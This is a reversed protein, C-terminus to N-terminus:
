RRASAKTESTREPARGPEPVLERDPEPVPDLEPEPEPVPDLEPDPEPVLEPPGGEGYVTTAWTGSSTRRSSDESRQPSSSRPPNILPSTTRRNAQSALSMM